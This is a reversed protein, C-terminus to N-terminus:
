FKTRKKIEPEESTRRRKRRLLKQKPNQPISMSNGRRLFADIGVRRIEQALLLAHNAEAITLGASRATIYDAQDYDELDAEVLLRIGRERYTDPSGREVVQRLKDEM